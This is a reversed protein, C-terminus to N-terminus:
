TLVMLRRFAMALAMLFTNHVIHIALPSALSGTREYLYALLCGLVMIPLFGVPNAHILAFIAGSSLIAVLRSLRQRLATYVVGRFFFEEAIPGVACALVSTLLLVMPRQEEFVLEHIPEIPPEWGFARAAEAILFLLLFLWPFVSLYGRVGLGIAPTARRSSLGLARWPSRGRGKEAAFVLVTLILCTDLLVMSVAVWLHADLQWNPQYYLLAVRVFPMLCAVM